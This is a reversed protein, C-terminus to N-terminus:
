AALHAMFMEGIQGSGFVRTLGRILRSFAPALSLFLARRVGVDIVKEIAADRRLQSIHSRSPGM